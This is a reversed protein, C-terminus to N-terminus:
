TALHMSVISPHIHRMNTKICTTTVTPINTTYLGKNFISHKLKPHQLINYTQTISIISTNETQIALRPVTPAQTHSTHTCINYTQTKHADQPLERHQTRCSKCNTLAPRPHLLRSYPLPLCWVQKMVAKYTAM